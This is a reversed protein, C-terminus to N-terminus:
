LCAGLSRKNTVELVPSYSQLLSKLTINRGSPLDAIRSSNKLYYIVSSKVSGSEREISSGEIDTAKNTYTNTSM